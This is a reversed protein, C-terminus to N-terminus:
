IMTDILPIYTKSLKPCFTELTSSHKTDLKPRYIVEIKLLLNCDTRRPLLAHLCHVRHCLVCCCYCLQILNMPNCRRLRGYLRIRIHIADSDVSMRHM